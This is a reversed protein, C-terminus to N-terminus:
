KTYTIATLRWFRRFLKSSSPKMAKKAKYPLLDLISSQQVWYDRYVSCTTYSSTVIEVYLAVHNETDKESVGSLAM